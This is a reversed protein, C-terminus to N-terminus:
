RVSFKVDTVDQATDSSLMKSLVTMRCFVTCRKNLGTKKKTTTTKKRTATLFWMDKHSDDETWAPTWAHVTRMNNGKGNLWIWVSFIDWKGTTHYPYMLHSLMNSYKM